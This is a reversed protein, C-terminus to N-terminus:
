GTGLEMSILYFDTASFFGNSFLIFFDYKCENTLPIADSKASM